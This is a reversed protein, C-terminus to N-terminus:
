QPATWTPMNWTFGQYGNYEVNDVGDRWALFEPVQFLPLTAVDAWIVSDIENMLDARTDADLEVNAQSFLTQVEPNDYKGFNQGGGPVYISENGALTTGGTWGFLAIDFNGEDLFVFDPQPALVIDIGAERLQSQILQATQQRRPNPDRWTVRLSLPQGDQEYIGNGGETFGASELLARAGELDREGYEEEGTPVYNASGPFYIHNNLVEASEDFPDVLQAVVDERDLAKAIAQRVELQGLFTNQFNFDMHEWFTGFGVFTQIGQIGETQQVLDLQAQPFIVDVEGNAMAAPQQTADTIWPIVIEDLAGPEGYYSENRSLTMSQGVVYSSVDYPGGSVVNEVDMSEVNFGNNWGEIQDGGGAAEFAHRPFVYDWLAMWDAYPEAFTVTVTKGGEGGEVSEIVDYGNTGAIDYLPTPEGTEPDVEASVERGNQAEWMYAFDDADIPEGDEWNADERITYEVVQPDESVLEISEVLEEDAVIDGNPLAISAGPWVNQMVYQTWAANHTATLWNLSTPEQEGGIVITGGQAADGDPETGADADQDQDVAGDNAADEDDDGGCAAAVLSLAMLLVLLRAFISRDKPDRM